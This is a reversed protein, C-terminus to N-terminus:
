FRDSPWFVSRETAVLARLLREDSAESAVEVLRALRPRDLVRWMPGPLEIDDVQWARRALEAALAADGCAPVFIPRGEPAMAILLEALESAGDPVRGYESVRAMGMLEIVRAYAVVVGDREVVHFTEDPNGAHQLQGKWYAADRVTCVDLDRMYGDYLQEVASLDGERFLRVPHSPARPVGDAPHVVHVPHRLPVWGLGGYFSERDSFLLSLAMGRACMEDIARELLATALGRRRYEPLTAVSGIGGLVIEEGRLRITRTFIQVTSALRSGDLAVLCDSYHLRADHDLYQAFLQREDFAVEMLSLFDDRQEARLRDYRLGSM